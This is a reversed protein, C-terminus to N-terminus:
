MWYVHRGHRTVISGYTYILEITVSLRGACRTLNRLTSITLIIKLALSVRITDSQYHKLHQTKKDRVEGYSFFMILIVPSPNMTNLAGLLRRVMPGGTWRRGVYTVRHMGRSGQMRGVDAVEVRLGRWTQFTAQHRGVWPNTRLAEAKASMEM